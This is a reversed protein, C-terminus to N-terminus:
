QLRITVNVAHGPNASTSTLAREGIIQLEKFGLARAEDKLQSTAALMERTLGKLPEGRGYIAIDKLM